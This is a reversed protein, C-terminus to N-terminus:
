LTGGGFMEDVEEKSSYTTEVAVIHQSPIALVETDSIRVFCGNSGGGPVMAVGRECGLKKGTSLWLGTVVGGSNKDAM